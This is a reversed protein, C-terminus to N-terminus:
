SGIVTLTSIVVDNIFLPVHSCVVRTAVPMRETPTEGLVSLCAPMRETRTEGLVSVGAPMRETRTEVLVSLCAPIRETRTEVLVSVSLCAPIRETRTEVLVPTRVWASLGHLALLDSERRGNARPDPVAVVHVRDVHHLGHGYVGWLQGGCVHRALLGHLGPVGWATQRQLGPRRPEGPARCKDPVVRQAPVDALGPCARRNHRGDRRSM